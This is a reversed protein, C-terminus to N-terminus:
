RAWDPLDTVRPKNGSTQALGRKSAQNMHDQERRGPVGHPSARTQFGVRLVSRAPGSEKKELCRWLNGWAGDSIASERGMM